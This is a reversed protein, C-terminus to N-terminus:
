IEGKFYWLHDEVIEVEIITNILNEYDERKKADERQLQELKEKNKQAEDYDGKALAILDIRKSSDSELLFGINDIDSKTLKKIGDILLIQKYKEIDRCIKDYKQLEYPKQNEKIGDKFLYTLNNM